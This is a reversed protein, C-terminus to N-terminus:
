TSTITTIDPEFFADGVKWLGASLYPYQVRVNLNSPMWNKAIYTVKDWSRGDRNYYYPVRFFVNKSGIINSVRSVGAILQNTYNGTEIDIEDGVQIPDLKFPVLPPASIEANRLGTKPRLLKKDADIIQLEEPSHSKLGLISILFMVGLLSGKSEILGNWLSKDIKVVQSEELTNKLRFPKYSLYKGEEDVEITEIEDLKINLLNSEKPDDVWESNTFPFKELASGKPTIKGNGDEIERDWWGFANRIMAEKTERSWSNNWLEGTLGVHQALWDLVDNTCTDIDLYDSYFSAISEKKSSLFSDVGSLLWQAPTEKDSFAPDSRYSESIGPMRSYTPRAIREKDYFFKSPTLFNGTIQIINSFLKQVEDWIESLFELGSQNKTFSEDIISFCRIKWEDFLSEFVGRVSDKLETSAPSKLVKDILVSEGTNPFSDTIVARIFREKSTDLGILLSSPKKNVGNLRSDAYIEVSNFFEKRPPFSLKTVVSAPKDIPILINAGNTLYTSHYGRLIPKLVVQDSNPLYYVLPLSNTGYTNASEYRWKRDGEVRSVKGIVCKGSKCLEDEGEGNKCKLGYLLCNEDKTKLPYGHTLVEYENSNTSTEELLVSDIYVHGVNKFKFDESANLFQNSIESDIVKQRNGVLDKSDSFEIRSIRHAFIRNKKTREFEITVHSPSLSSKERRIRLPVSDWTSFNM